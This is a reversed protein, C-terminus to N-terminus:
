YFQTQQKRINYTREIESPDTKEMNNQSLAQQDVTVSDNDLKGENQMQTHSSSDEELLHLRRCM